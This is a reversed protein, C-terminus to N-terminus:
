KRCYLLLARSLHNICSHNVHFQRWIIRRIQSL